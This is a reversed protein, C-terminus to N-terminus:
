PSLTYYVWHIILMSDDTLASSLEKRQETCLFRGIKYPAALLAGWDQDMVSFNGKDEQDPFTDENEQSLCFCQALINSQQCGQSSSRLHTALLAM